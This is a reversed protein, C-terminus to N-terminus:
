VHSVQRHLKLSPERQAEQEASQWLTRHGDDAKTLKRGVLLRAHVIQHILVVFAHEAAGGITLQSPQHARRVLDHKGVCALQRARGRL